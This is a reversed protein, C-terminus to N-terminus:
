DEAGVGALRELAARELGVSEGAALIGDWVALPLPLGHRLREIRRMREPDGPILVNDVGAAPPCSRVLAVYDRVAPGWGFGDDFRDPDLYISLMGNHIGSGGGGAGSGTLAGALLECALALGSGKHAGMPALAGAGGRPDPVTQDALDGYLARPDSSPRGEGDILAGEPAPKGGKLAVLAKGEAILSTAFDLIFDGDAGEPNPVGVCVPATSMRRGAGGFPAVLLSNQVNVFHISALGEACAAEAWAGIRGLHGARRLGVVSVGDRKARKVGFAVAQAGVTQGYGLCGDLLALGGSDMLVEAQRGFYVEGQQAWQVYRPTRVVGHSDHGRATAEALNEAIRWAEEEAGGAAAFIRALVVTVGEYPAHIVDVM